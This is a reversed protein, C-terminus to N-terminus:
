YDPAAAPPGFTEYGLASPPEPRGFTEYGLVGPREPRGFTEYGIAAPREPRGVAILPNVREGVGRGGVGPRGLSWFDRVRTGFIMVKLPPIPHSVERRKEDNGAGPYSVKPPVAPPQKPAVLRLALPTDELAGWSHGAAPYSVEPGDLSM